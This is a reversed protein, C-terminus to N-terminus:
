IEVSQLLPSNIRESNESYRVSNMAPDQYATVLKDYFSSITPDSQDSRDKKILCEAPYSKFMPLFRRRCYSNFVLTLIPLPITLSSALPVKKLGFIGIAIIHMLILSFITSDHAVPWFKGGTEFKPAYVDLLQNRYIVYGLCYYGLLFPLILPSLFFYTVGLLSFFLIRPIESHYPISPVEFEEYSKGGLTRKLSSWILPKLQFLESSVTKTWGSTVVYAIFFSAQGPVAVALIEPIRKPELIINVRYLASGSLVNAFFINWVTFWLIKICASKEIQSLSIYGQISSLVVMVPLVLSVFMELILSPLYGTIVQSVIKLSLIGKLFPFWIELQELHTLGQVVLVPILFLITIFVCAVIVALNCMWRKLFSASFFPWYVDQPDPAPEAIWETPKVGQQIHTAIAANFRSKFSVFAAPVEKGAQISRETRVNDEMEELKKECRDVLDVRKGYLGMFGARGFRQQTDNESKLHVLRRYLKDANNILGKLKSTRRVVSHSLYTSPYYETFFSEVSESFSRGSNPISRVLVTFQHPRPKSSYFYAIRKSSIYDYEIYLLYCVVATFVYVACFHIWLRNSGDDVNSISFSELSKNPLDTFDINLQNGMYNFPLLICIGIITAFRFVRLGFTIIRMFVVADLGSNALLEEESPQWARKVWNVSPLIREFNYGDGLQSKGESVLRPLYLHAYRQGKKLISFLTLFLLCLGVNIGVSTLLASLIM